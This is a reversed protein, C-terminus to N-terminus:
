LHPLRNASPHSFIGGNAAPEFAQRQSPGVVIQLNQIAGHKGFQDMQSSEVITM